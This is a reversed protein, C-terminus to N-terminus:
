TSWNRESSASTARLTLLPQACLALMPYKSELYHMWIMAGSGRRKEQEIHEVLDTIAGPFGDM